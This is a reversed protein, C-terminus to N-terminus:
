EETHNPSWNGGWVSVTHTSAQNHIHTLTQSHTCILQDVGWPLTVLLGVIIDARQECNKCTTFNRTSCLELESRENGALRSGWIRIDKGGNIYAHIYQMYPQLKARVSSFHCSVYTHQIKQIGKGPKIKREPFIGPQENHLLFCNSQHGKPSLLCQYLAHDAVQVNLFDVLSAFGLCIYAQILHLHVNLFIYLVSHSSFNFTIYM